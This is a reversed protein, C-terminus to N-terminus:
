IKSTTLQGTRHIVQKLLSNQATRYGGISNHIVYKRVSEFIKPPYTFNRGNEGWKTRQRKHKTTLKVERTM